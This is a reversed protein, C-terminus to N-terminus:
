EMGLGLVYLSPTSQCSVALPRLSHQRDNNIVNLLWVRSVYPFKEIELGKCVFLLAPRLRFAVVAPRFGDCVSVEVAFFARM